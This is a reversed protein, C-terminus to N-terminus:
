LVTSNIGVRSKVFWSMAAVPVATTLATAIAAGMMGYTPILVANLIINAGVSSMLVRAAAGEHETMTLIMASAGFCSALAQGSMLILLPLYASVFELGFLALIWEGALLFFIIAPVLCAFAVRAMTKAIRALDDIKGQSYLEAILPAGFSGLAITAFIAMAALRSAVSYIGSLDTSQFVGLMLVDTQTLLVNAGAVFLLPTSIRRWKPQVFVSTTRYVDAPMSKQLWRWGFLLGVLVTCIAFIIADDGFVPWGLAWFLAALVCIGIPRLLMDQVQARVMWGRSRLIFQVQYMVTMIPLLIAGWVATEFLGDPVADRLVVLAALGFLGIGVSAALVWSLTWALLGRLLGWDENVVYGPILRLAGSDMGQRALLSLVLIGSTVFAFHGFAEVGMLRALVANMGFLAFLGAGKITLDALGKSFLRAKLRDDGAVRSLLTSIKLM